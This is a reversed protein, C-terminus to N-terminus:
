IFAFYEYVYFCFLDKLDELADKQKVAKDEYWLPIMTRNSIGVSTYFTSHMKFNSIATYKSLMFVVVSVLIFCTHGKFCYVAYEM